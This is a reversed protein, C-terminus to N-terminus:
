LPKEALQKYKDMYAEFRQHEGADTGGALHVINKRWPAAGLAPSEHTKLKDLYRIVQQPETASVRGTPMRAIYQNNEWDASLFNDSAGRTSSPVLDAAPALQSRPYEGVMLGKGLLLLYNTQAAPSNALEWRVFNRLGGVSKEGYHFQNYLQESTIVVTDYRGGLTSARYNAYERVANVGGVPRMLYTHSIILFNSAAANLTRFRVRVAPRPTATQAEDALLLRRVQNTTAGPFSYGRQQGALALGEVRQVNYTDTLDFGRVTAPISDLTYYAPGALTSDNSFAMQRQGARWRSAQPFTYRVYGVRYGYKQSTTRANADRSLTYVVGTPSIDSHLLPHRFLRKEYGNFSISGLVRETNTGPQMVSVQVTHPGSWAGVFLLEVQPVTGATRAEAWVSDAIMSAPLTGPPFSPGSGAGSNGGFEVSLFGEGAEGWPQYIYSEDDVYAIEGQIPNGNFLVQRQALRTAHPAATPTTAVATMRRGNTTASWTLFYAATDTYLSYLDHPQTTAGGKYLAQDLKGDNRQGYFEFYTTADLTNQNGGGHIALERGRRWLQIRQPNVGSIGAQALYQQDLRYLATKTVKIKYYQQSPVIWENGYSARTQATVPGATLLWSLLVGCWSLFQKYYYYQKM